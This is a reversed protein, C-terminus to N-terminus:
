IRSLYQRKPTYGWTELTSEGNGYSDKHMHWNNIYSEKKSSDNEKIPYLLVGQKAKLRYMYTIVQFIDERSPSNEIRKYKTDIVIKSTDHYFDPRFKTGNEEFLNQNSPHKFGKDKLLTWVYEEWLWSSDFLIGRTKQYKNQFSSGKYNLIQICLSRLLEYEYYYPHQLKKSCSQVIKQRNYPKYNITIDRIININKRVESSGNIANKFKGSNIYEICHRILQTINNDFSHERTNQTIHM